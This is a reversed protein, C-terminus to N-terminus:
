IKIEEKFKDVDYISIGDNIICSTFCIELLLHKEVQQKAM